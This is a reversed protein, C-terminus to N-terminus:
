ANSARWLLRAQAAGLGLMPLCSMLAITMDAGHRAVNPVLWPACAAILCVQSALGVRLLRTRPVGFWLGLPLLVAGLRALTCTAVEFHLLLVGLSRGGLFVPLETRPVLFLSALQLAHLTLAGWLLRPEAREAAADARLSGLTWWGLAIMPLSGLELPLTGADTGIVPLCVLGSLVGGTLFWAAALRPSRSLALAAGLCSLPGSLVFALAIWREAPTILVLPSGYMGAGAICWAAAALVQSVGVVLSTVRLRKSAGPGTSEGM